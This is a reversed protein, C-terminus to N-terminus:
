PVPSSVGVRILAADTAPLVETYTPPLVREGLKPPELACWPLARVLSSANTERILASPDVTSAVVNMPPTLWSASVPSAVPDPCTKRAPEVVDVSRGVLM